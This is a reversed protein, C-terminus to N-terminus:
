GLVIQLKVDTPRHEAAREFALISDDFGFTGSILPKLDVKGSAILEVARDFVNAYRFVSELRLEKAQIRVIDMAPAVPPMGVLVIVGGPAALDTLDAYVKPAGSAEFVVDAGWGGTERSVVDALSERSVDVAMIGEYQAAIDLKPRAIDSIIVRACGGA